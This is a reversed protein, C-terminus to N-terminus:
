RWLDESIRRRLGGFGTDEKKEQGAMLDVKQKRSIRPHTALKWLLMALKGPTENKSFVTEKEGEGM